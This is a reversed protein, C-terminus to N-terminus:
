MSPHKSNDNEDVEKAKSASDCLTNLTTKLQTVKNITDTPKIAVAGFTIKNLAVKIGHWITGFFGRHDKLESTEANTILKQCTENLSNILTKGLSVNYIELILNDHLGIAARAADTYGRNSLEDGKEKLKKIEQIITALFATIDYIKGMDIDNWIEDKLEDSSNIKTPDINKLDKEQIKSLCLRAFLNFHEESMLQGNTVVTVKLAPIDTSHEVTRLGDTIADYVSKDSHIHKQKQKDLFNRLLKERFEGRNPDRNSAHIIIQTLTNKM